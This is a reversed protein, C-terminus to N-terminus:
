PKGSFRNQFHYGSVTFHAIREIYEPLQNLFDQIQLIPVIPVNEYFKFRCDMLTLVIPVIKAGEFYGNISKFAPNPSSDALAKTRKVQEVAIRELASLSLAHHWHKCDICLIMSKACGVVDIEWRRGNYKFRLNQIIEYRNQELALAAMTEFEQWQLFSSVREMDAGLSLARTALRFRQLTNVEVSDQNVYVLGAKQLTQLLKEAVQQPMKAHKKITEHSVPGNQTEGLLAIIMEKEISMYVVGSTKM